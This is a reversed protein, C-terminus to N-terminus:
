KVKCYDLALLAYATALTKNSELWKENKNAFSGDDGQLKMLTLILERSWDHEIGDTDKIKPEGYAHLAKAFTHYYYYVGAQRAVPDSEHEFGPHESLSWNKSIWGVAAKVRPDDKKLGAYLFSKILAYTMSGYSRPTETDGNSVYGPPNDIGGPCYSAGGDNGPALKKSKGDVEVEITKDNSETRNQCRNLFVLAKKWTESEKDLGAEHLAELALQANSLDPRADSGYGIGGYHWNDTGIEEGEDLQAGVLHNRAKAVADAYKSSGSASLAMLAVSTTYTSYGTLKHWISGDEHQLSVLWDLPPEILAKDRGIDYQKDSKILALVVLATVGPEPFSKPGMAVEWVGKKQQERLYQAAFRMVHKLHDKTIDAPKLSNILEASLADMNPTEVSAGASATDTPSGATPASDGCGSVLLTMAAVAAFWRVTTRTENTNM